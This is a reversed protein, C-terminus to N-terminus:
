GDGREWGVGGRGSCAAEAEDAVGRRPKDWANPVCRGCRQRRRHPIPSRIPGPLTSTVTVPAIHNLKTNNTLQISPSSTARVPSSSRHHDPDPDPNNPHTKPFPNPTSISIDRPRINPRTPNHSIPPPSTNM